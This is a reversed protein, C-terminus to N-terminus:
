TEAYDVPGGASLGTVKGNEKRMGIELIGGPQGITSEMTGNELDQHLIMAAAAAAETSRGIVIPPDASCDFSTIFANERSLSVIIVNSQPFAACVQSVIEEPKQETVIYYEGPFAFATGFDFAKIESPLPLVISAEKAPVHVVVQIPDYDQREVLVLCVGTVGASLARTYAARRMSDGDYRQGASPVEVTLIQSM